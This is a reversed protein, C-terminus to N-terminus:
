SRDPIKTTPQPEADEGIMGADEGIMEGDSSIPPETGKRKNHSGDGATSGRDWTFQSSQIPQYRRAIAMAEQSQEASLTAVLLSNGDRLGDRYASVDEQQALGAFLDASTGENGTLIQVQEQGYGATTFERRVKAADDGSEYLAMLVQTM